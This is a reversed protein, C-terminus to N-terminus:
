ADGAKYRSGGAPHTAHSIQDTWAMVLASVVFAIYIVIQWQISRDSQQDVNIFTQLLHISSITILSLSLKIKLTSTNARDLWEPRDPHGEIRLKSVFTEYGGIIVMILLNSIMVVDILSLVAMMVESEPRGAGHMVLDWVELVFRYTYVAQAFILGLYLPVQLWRSLFIIHSLPNASSQPM